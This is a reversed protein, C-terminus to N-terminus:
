GLLELVKEVVRRNGIYLCDNRAATAFGDKALVSKPIAEEDAKSILIVEFPNLNGQIMKLEAADVIKIVIM